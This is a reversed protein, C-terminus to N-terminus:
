ASQSFSVVVIVVVFVSMCKRPDNSLALVEDVMAATARRAGGQACARV